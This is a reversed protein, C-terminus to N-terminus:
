SLSKKYKWYYKDKYNKNEYLKMENNCITCKRKEKILKLKQLNRIILELKFDEKNYKIVKNENEKNPEYEKNNLEESDSLNNDEIDLNNININNEESDIPESNFNNVEYEIDM